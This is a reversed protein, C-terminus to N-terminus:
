QNQFVQKSFVEVEDIKISRANLYEKIHFVAIIQYNLNTRQLIYCHDAEAKVTPGNAQDKLKAFMDSYQLWFIPDLTRDEAYPLGSHAKGPYTGVQENKNPYTKCSTKGLDAIHGIQDPFIQTNITPTVGDVDVFEIDVVNKHINQDQSLHFFSYSSKTFSGESYTKTILEISPVAEISDRNQVAKAKERFTRLGCGSMMLLSLILSGMFLNRTKM